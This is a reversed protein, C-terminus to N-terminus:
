DSAATDAAQARKRKVLSQRVLEQAERATLELFGDPWDNALGGFPTIEWPRYATLGETSEAFVLQVLEHTESTPDQAIRLRLRNVLHESHSEVVIQRGTRACLLLFDALESQLRPHLHLEPQEILVLSGPEALLCLVLVPLVQSVGVGVATLDVDRDAGVPRVSLSIGLRALDEARASDALGFRQLWFDLAEGLPRSENTGDPRPMLVLTKREKHLVAATFEGQKGLRTASSSREYLARPAERLPGLYEVSAEFFRRSTSSARWLAEGAPGAHDVLVDRDLWNAGAFRERLASRFRSEGLELMSIAISKRDADDLRAFNELIAAQVAAPHSDAVRTVAKNLDNWAQEVADASPAITVGEAAVEHRASVRVEELVRWVVTWWIDALRAFQGARRLLLLPVGGALIVADVSTTTMDVRDGVRGSAAIPSIPGGVFQVRQSVVPEVDLEGTGSGFSSIDCTLIPRVEGDSEPIHEGVEIALSSLRAFGSTVGADSVGDPGVVYAHWRLQELIVGDNADGDVDRAAVLEFALEMPVGSPRRSRFNRTEEYTGLRILDGNLPFDSSREGSRVAQTVALISQLLTSKGASNAGVVVTLPRLEVDAEDVSKFDKLVVRRLQYPHNIV